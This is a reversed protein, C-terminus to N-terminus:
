RAAIKKTKKTRRDVALILSQIMACCVPDLQSCKCEGTAAYGVAAKLAAMRNEAQTMWYRCNTEMERLKDGLRDQDITLNNITRIKEATQARQLELQTRLGSVVSNYQQETIIM